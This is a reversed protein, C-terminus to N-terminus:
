REDKMKKKSDTGSKIRNFRYIFFVIIFAVSLIFLVLFFLFDSSLRPPNLRNSRIVEIFTFDLFIITAIGILDNMKVTLENVVDRGKTALWIDIKPISLMDDPVKKLIWGTFLIVLLVFTHSLIFINFFTRKAVFLDAVGRSNFHVAVESPLTSSAYFILGLISVIYSIWLLIKINQKGGM